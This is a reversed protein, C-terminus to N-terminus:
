RNFHFEAHFMNQLHYNLATGYGRGAGGLTGRDSLNQGVKPQTVDAPQRHSIQLRDTGGHQCLHQQGGAGVGDWLWQGGEVVGTLQKMVQKDLGGRLDFVQRTVATQQRM